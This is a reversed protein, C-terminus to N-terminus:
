AARKNSQLVAELSQYGRSVRKRYADESIGLMRACDRVKYTIELTKGNMPDTAKARTKGCFMRDVSIAIIQDKDDIRQVAIMAQTMQSTTERYRMRHVKDALKCFGSFGSGKPLTGHDAYIGLIHRAEKAIDDADSSSFVYDLYQEVVQEAKKRWLKQEATKRNQEAM